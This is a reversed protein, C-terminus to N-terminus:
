MFKLLIEKFEEPVIGQEAVRQLSLKLNLICIESICCWSDNMKELTWMGGCLQKKFCVQDKLYFKLYEVGRVLDIVSTPINGSPSTCVRVSDRSCFKHFFNFVFITPPVISNMSHLM